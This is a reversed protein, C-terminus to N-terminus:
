IGLGKLWTVVEIKAKEFCLYARIPNEDSLNLKRTLCYDTKGIIDPRRKKKGTINVYVQGDETLHWEDFTSAEPDLFYGHTCPKLYVKGYKGLLKNDSEIYKEQYPDDHCPDSSQQSFYSQGEPCCMQVCNTLLCICGRKHSKVSIKHSRNIFKYNFDGYFEKSYIIGNFEIKGDSHKIGNTINVSEFFSCPKNDCKVSVIFCILLIFIQYNLYPFMKLKIDKTDLKFYNNNEIFILFM